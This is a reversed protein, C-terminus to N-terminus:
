PIAHRIIYRLVPSKACCSDQRPEDSEHCLLGVAESCPGLFAKPRVPEFVVKERKMM